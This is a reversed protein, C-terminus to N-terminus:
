KPLITELSCDGTFLEIQNTDLNKYQDLKARIFLYPDLVNKSIPLVELEDLQLGCVNMHPIPIEGLISNVLPLVLSYVLPKMTAEIRVPNLGLPNNEKGLLVELSYSLGAALADTDNTVKPVIVQLYQNATFNQTTGNALKISLHKVGKKVIDFKVLMSLNIKLKGMLYDRVGDPNGNSGVSAGRLHVILDPFMIKLQPKQLDAGNRDLYPYALPFIQPDLVAYVVDKENILIKSGTTADISYWTPKGADFVTTIAGGNLLSEAFQLLEISKGM